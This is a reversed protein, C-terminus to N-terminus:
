KVKILVVYKSIESIQKTLPLSALKKNSPLEISKPLVDILNLIYSSKITYGVNDAIDKRIGSSNIGIFNAMDDFLPGGSNGGQIPATIQYTTIDGDFGSKSSIIGDTIKIEKGMISLAMPYGYAYVTTGVDSTRTKFNYPIDDLGDFNMDFIKIISLDNVKDSQVIEANYKQIEGDLLFEVEIDDADEIVHYNTIIHGSKSIIIGSGNGAWDGNKSRIRNKKGLKPFVKYMVAKNPQGPISFEILANNKNTGVAKKVTRKDGMTWNITLVEDSAATEIFAKTDGPSWKGPGEIIKAIFRYDQQIIVVRYDNGGDPAYEWIGEILETGSNEFYERISAEDNFDFEYESVDVEKKNEPTLKPDFSYKYNIYQRLIKDAAVRTDRKKGSMDNGARATGSFVNVGNCNLAEIAVDVVTWYSISVPAYAGTLFLVQCFEDSNVEKLKEESSIVKFGNSKFKNEIVKRLDYQDIETAKQNQVLNIREVYVYKYGNLLQNQSVSHTSFLFLLVLFFNKM